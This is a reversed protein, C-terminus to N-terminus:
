RTVKDLMPDAADVVRRDRRGPRARVVVVDLWGANGLRYVGYEGGGPRLSLKETGPQVGQSERQQTGATTAEIGRGAEGPYPRRQFALHSTSVGPLNVEDGPLARRGVHDEGSEGPRVQAPLGTVRYGPLLAAFLMFLLVILHPEM